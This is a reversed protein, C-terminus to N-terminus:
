GRSFVNRGSPKLTYYIYAPSWIVRELCGYWEKWVNVRENDSHSSNSERGSLSCATRAIIPQHLTVHRTRTPVVHYVPAQWTTQLARQRIILLSLPCIFCSTDLFNLNKLLLTVGRTVVGYDISTRGSWTCKSRGRNCLNKYVGLKM